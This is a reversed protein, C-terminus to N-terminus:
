QAENLLKRFYPLASFGFRVTNWKEERYTQKSRTQMTRNVRPFYSSYKPNESMKKATKLALITRHEKLSILQLHSKSWDYSRTPFLIKCFNRQVRELADALYKTRHQTLAGAWLPSCMELIPRVFLIFAKQVTSISESLTQILSTKVSQTLIKAM